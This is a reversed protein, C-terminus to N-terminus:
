NRSSAVEGLIAQSKPFDNGAVSKRLRPISRRGDSWQLEPGRYYGCCFCEYTPESGSDHRATSLQSCEPCRGVSGDNSLGKTFNEIPEQDGCFLCVINQGDIVMADQLCRSCEDLHHTAPRPSESLRASLGHLRQSVFGTVAALDCVTEQLSPMGYPTEWDSLQLDHLELFLNAAAVFVALTEDQRGGAVFHVIRNRLDRLSVLVKKQHSSLRLRAVEALAAFADEMGISHFDGQLFQMETLARGGKVILGPDDTVLRAKALLELAIGLHLAASRSAHM